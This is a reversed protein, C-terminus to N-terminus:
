RPNVTRGGKPAHTGSTHNNQPEAQSKTIRKKILSQKGGKPIIVQFRGCLRNQSFFVEHKVKGATVVSATELGRGSSGSSHSVSLLHISKKRGLKKRSNPIIGNQRSHPDLTSHSGVHYELLRDTTGLAVLIHGNGRSSHLSQHNFFACRFVPSKRESSLM